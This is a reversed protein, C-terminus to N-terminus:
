PATADTRITAEPVPIPFPKSEAFLEITKGDKSVESIIGLPGPSAPLKFNDLRVRLFTWPASPDYMLVEDAGIASAYGPAPNAGGPGGPHFYQGTFRRLVFEAFRVAGDDEQRAVTRQDNPIAEIKDLIASMITTGCLVAAGNWGARELKLRMAVLDQYIQRLTTGAATWDASVAFAGPAGFQVTYTDVVRGTQDAIPYTITGSLSQAALAETTLRHAQLHERTRDDAWAEVGMMGVLAANNFEAASVADYTSVPHPEIYEFTGSAHSITIGPAGRLVIPVARTIATIKQRPVLVMPWAQRRSEPYFLDMVPTGYAETNLIVQAIRSPRFLEQVGTLNVGPFAIALTAISKASLGWLHLAMGCVLVVLVCLVIYFLRKM